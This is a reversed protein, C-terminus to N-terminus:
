PNNGNENETQDVNIDVWKKDIQQQLKLNRIRIENSKTGSELMQRRKQLLDNEVAQEEPNLENSIIIPMKYNKMKSLSLLILRKAYDSDIKVILTRSKGESFKGVQKLDTVNCTIQLHKTVAKVQKLDHEYRERSNNSKLEPIGRFRIGEYNEHNKPTKQQPLKIPKPKPETPPHPSTKPKEGLEQQISNLQTNVARNNVKIEARLEEVEQLLKETENNKRINTIQDLLADKQKLDVCSQCILLINNLIGSICMIIENSLGTCKPTLHMCEGCAVYLFIASKNEISTSCSKCRHHKTKEKQEQSM